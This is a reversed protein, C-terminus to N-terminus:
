ITNWYRYLDDNSFFYAKTKGVTTENTEEYKLINPLVVLASGFGFLYSVVLQIRFNIYLQGNAMLHKQLKWRATDFVLLVVSKPVCVLGNLTNQQWWSKKTSSISKGITRHLKWMFDDQFPETPASLRVFISETIRSKTWFALISITILMTM